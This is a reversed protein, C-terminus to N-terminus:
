FHGVAGAQPKGKGVLQAIEMAVVPLTATNVAPPVALYAPQWEPRFKNKFARLGQFNYSGEGRQFLFNVGKNWLPAGERADLGSLPAMGLDFRAYGQQKGWLMCEIFLYEMIGNSVHQRYRMLDVSLEKGDGSAWLNAFAVIQGGQEVIACPFHKLYTEDFFGLSFGKETLHRAAIWDDSVAKLEELRESVENKALISFTYQERIMKNRPPRLSKGAAGELTFDGLNVVADEGIKFIHLGLEIFLPLNESSVEYWVLRVGERHAMEHFSWLMGPFADRNGVPDGMIVLMNNIKGYMIFSTNDESFFFYKDGLLALNASACSAHKLIDDVKERCSEYTRYPLKAVSTLLMRLAVAAAAVSVGLGARLSRPADKRFAFEWWLEGSYQVHKYSFIGLWVAVFLVTGVAALWPVGTGPSLLAAHRYFLRRSPLMLLFVCSLIIAEEWDFGKLLSFAAGLGLLALTMYYAGDIRRRLADAVVLLALGTISAAFHSVELLQLPIFLNLLELRSKVSPTAVSFLLVAGCFFVFLSLIMPILPAMTKARQLADSAIHKRLSYGEHLVFGLLGVLLPGFYYIGRYAILTGFLVDSSITPSLALMIMSEFVGLGGPVHSVAGILQAIVFIGVCALFSPKGSPLLVYFVASALFWDASSVFVQRLSIAPSPLRVSFSRIHLEKKMKFSLVIYCAVAVLLLLGIVQSFAGLKSLAPISRPTLLLSSGGMVALGIWFTSVCFAVIRAIDKGDLGWLSYFRYRMTSSGFLSLGINYSFVYSMFSTFGVEKYPLKKGIHRLALVDYGTLVFYNCATLVIAIAITRRPYNKLYRVLDHYHYNRLTAFLLYLAVALVALICLSKIKKWSKGSWWNGM